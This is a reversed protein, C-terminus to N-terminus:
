LIFAVILTQLIYVVIVAIFRQFWKMNKKGICKGMWPCHHDLKEICCNCYSCHATGPYQNVNCIDCYPLSNQDDDDDLFSTGEEDDDNENNEVQNNNNKNNQEYEKNELRKKYKNNLIVVGPDIIATIFLFLEALLVEIINLIYIIKYEIKNLSNFLFFLNLYSCIIIIISTFLVGPWHPGIIFLILSNLSNEIILLNGIRYWKLKSYFFFNKKKIKKNSTNIEM